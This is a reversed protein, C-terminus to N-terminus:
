KMACFIEIINLIIDIEIINISEFCNVLFLFIGPIYYKNTNKEFFDFIKSDLPSKRRKNCDTYFDTIVNIKEKASNALVRKLIDNGTIRFSDFKSYSYCLIYGINYINDKNLVLKKNYKIEM